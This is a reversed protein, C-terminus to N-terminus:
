VGRLSQAWINTLYFFSNAWLDSWQTSQDGQLFFSGQAHKVRVPTHPSVSIGSVSSGKPVRCFTGHLPRLFYEERYKQHRWYSLFYDPLTPLLSKPGSCGHGSNLTSAEQHGSTTSRLSLRTFFSMDQARCVLHSCTLVHSPVLQDM